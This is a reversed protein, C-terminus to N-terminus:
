GKVKNLTKSRRMERNIAKSMQRLVEQADRGNVEPPSIKPTLFRYRIHQTAKLGTPLTMTKTEWDILGKKRLAAVENSLSSSPREDGRFDAIAKLSPSHNGATVLGKIALYTAFQHTSVSVGKLLVGGKRAKQPEQIQEDLIKKFVELGTQSHTTTSM